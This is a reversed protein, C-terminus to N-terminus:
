WFLSACGLLLLSRWIDDNEDDVVHTPVLDAIVCIIYPVIFNLGREYIEVYTEYQLTRECKHLSHAGNVGNMRFQQRRVVRTM